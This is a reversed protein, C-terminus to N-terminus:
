PKVIVKLGKSKEAYEFATMIEDLPLTHSILDVVNVTPSGALEVAKRYEAITTGSSGTISFQNYHVQNMTIPLNVDDVAGAFIVVRTGAAMLSVAENLAEPNGIALDVIDVGTQKLKEVHSALNEVHVVEDAGLRKAKRLRDHLLGIVTVRRVLFFNKLLQVHILGNPGDGVIVANDRSQPNALNLAHIGAAVPEVLAGADFSMDDPLKFVLGDSVFRSPVRLLEAYAGNVNIGISLLSRCLNELGKSCERCSLCPGDPAVNIRDGPSISAVKSEVVDGSFEHGLIIPPKAIRSGHRYIKLDTPCVGVSRVKVLVENLSIRPSDVEEVKM